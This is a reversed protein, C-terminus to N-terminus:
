FKGDPQYRYRIRGLRWFTESADDSNITISFLRGRVRCNIFPIGPTMAYPGYSIPAQTPYYTANITVYITENPPSNYPGFKMDPWIQDIFVMQDADSAAFYGTTFNSNMAQGAASYGVEHQYIFNDTGSGIPLGLASQDIWATRGLSGYDWQNLAVNLKVYSDIEGNGSLSPYFWFIENFTTNPACRIKNVNNTDLNQFVVDWVPCVLPTAGQGGMMFFQKQSMWYIMNNLQGVAKPAILGCNSSIKNFGYVAPAGIYQMSWLDIDTWFLGQQIAQVGGVIKSGSPIRYSGAQNVSSATWVNYNEVDCWRILLPDPTSTYSAGWAIIQRQPMAIFMGNNATPANAIYQANPISGSPDWYYLAGGYPCAILQQGWNDLFWDTATLQTGSTGPVSLGGFSGSGFANAGFATDPSGPSSAIYYFLSVNGSNDFASASSTAANQAIFKFEDVGLNQFVQYNGNITLGGVSVTNSFSQTTTPLANSYPFIVDVTSSSNTTTLYRVAAPFYATQVGSQTGSTNIDAGSPATAITFQTANIKKVYYTTGATIGTPLAGTTKFVVPTGSDPASAVTIVAPSAITITATQNTTFSAPISALITYETASIQQYVAYTGQIILGGVSVPTLFNVYSFTNITANVDIVHVINSGSIATMNLASGSWPAVTTAKTQPSINYSQGNSIAYLGGICGVGLWLNLRLDEWGKLARVTSPMPLSYYKVWGGMKQPVAEGNRDPLFRILNSTSIAAENLAPTKTTDVGPLIKLSAHPM